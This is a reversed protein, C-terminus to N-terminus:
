SYYVRQRVMKEESVLLLVGADTHPRKSAWIGCIAIPSKECSKERSLDVLYRFFSGWGMGLPMMWERGQAEGSVHKCPPLHTEGELQELSSHTDRDLM